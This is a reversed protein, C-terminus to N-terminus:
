IEGNLYEKAIDIGNDAMTEIIGKDITELEELAEKDSDVNPRAPIPHTGNRFGKPYNYIPPLDINYHSLFSILEDHSWDSLPSYRSFTETKKQYVNSGRGVYNGDSKRRGLVLIDIDHEQAFKKQGKHQVIQFWKSATNSEKPFLMKPNERVWSWDIPIVVEHYNPIDKEKLWELMQPYEVNTLVNFVKFDKGTMKMVELLANADKGGSYAVAVKNDKLTAQIDSVTRKVLNDIDEKKIPPEVLANHWEIEESNRKLM